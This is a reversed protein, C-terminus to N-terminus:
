INFLSLRDAEFLVIQILLQILLDADADRIVQRDKIIEADLRHVIPLKILDSTAVFLSEGTLQPCINLLHKGLFHNM